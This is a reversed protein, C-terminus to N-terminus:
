RPPQRRRRLDIVVLVLGTVAALGGVIPSVPLTKREEIRAEIPGIAVSEENRAYPVGNYMVVLLGFLVLVVGLILSWRMISEEETNGNMFVSVHTPLM